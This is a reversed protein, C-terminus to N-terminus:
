FFANALCQEKWSSLNFMGRVCNPRNSSFITSNGKKKRWKKQLLPHANSNAREWINVIGIKVLYNTASLSPFLIGVSLGVGDIHLPSTM